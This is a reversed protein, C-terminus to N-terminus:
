IIAHLRGHMSTIHVNKALWENNMEIIIWVLLSCFIHRLLMPIAPLSFPAADTFTRVFPCTLFFFIFDLSFSLSFSLAPAKEYNIQRFPFHVLCVLLSLIHPLVCLANTTAVYLLPLFLALFLILITVRLFHSLSLSFLLSHLSLASVLARFLLSCAIIPVSHLQLQREGNAELLRICPANLAPLPFVSFSLFPSLLVLALLLCFYKECLGNKGTHYYDM